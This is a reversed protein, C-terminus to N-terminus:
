TTAKRRRTSIFALLGVGLLLLAPPEPVQVWRGTAGKCTGTAGCGGDFIDTNFGLIAGGSINVDVEGTNAAVQLDLISDTLVYRAIFMHQAFLWGTGQALDLNIPTHINNVNFYFRSIPSLPDANSCNPPSQASFSCDKPAVYSGHGVEWAADTLEIEGVASYITPSTTLTDWRYIVGAFASGSILACFILALLKPMNTEM